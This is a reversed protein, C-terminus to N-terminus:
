EAKEKQKTNAEIGEIRSELGAIKDLAVDLTREIVFVSAILLAVTALQLYDEVKM